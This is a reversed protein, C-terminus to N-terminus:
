LLVITEWAVAEIVTWGAGPEARMKLDIGADRGIFWTLHIVGDLIVPRSFYEARPGDVQRLVPPRSFRVPAGDAEIRAILARCGALEVIPGAPGSLAKPKGYGPAHPRDLALTAFAQGKGGTRAEALRPAVADYATEYFACDAAPYASAAGPLALGLAIALALAPAKMAALKAACPLGRM